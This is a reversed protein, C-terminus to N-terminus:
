APLMMLTADIAPSPPLGIPRSVMAYLVELPATMLKVRASATSHPLYLMVTLAMQGPKKGLLIVMPVSLATPSSFNAEPAGRLRRPSSSSRLPKHTNYADAAPLCMVPWHSATSPPTLTIVPPYTLSRAFNRSPNQRQWGM